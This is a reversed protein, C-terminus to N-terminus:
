KIGQIKINCTTIAAQIIGGVYVLPLTNFIAVIVRLSKAARRRSFNPNVVASAYLNTSMTKSSIRSENTFPSSTFNAPNPLKLIRVLAWRIPRLGFVPSAATIEARRTADNRGLLSNLCRTAFCSYFGGWHPTKKLSYIILYLSCLASHLSCHLAGDACRKINVPNGRTAVSARLSLPTLDHMVRLSRGQERTM